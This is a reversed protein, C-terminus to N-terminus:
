FALLAPWPKPEPRGRHVPWLILRIETEIGFGFFADQGDHEPLLSPHTHHRMKYILLEGCVALGGATAGTHGISRTCKLALDSIVSLSGLM